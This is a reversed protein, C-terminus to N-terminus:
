LIAELEKESFESMPRPPALKGEVVVTLMESLALLDETDSSLVLVACGAAARQKIFAYIERRTKVDVGRTPECLVLVSAESMVARGFIIKQKNGGSLAGFRYDSDQPEVGYEQVARASADSERKPSLLGLANKWRPLSSITFNERVTFEDFGGQSERHPPVMAANVGDAFVVKGREVKQEGTMIYALDHLGSGLLGGVGIIQGARLDLSVPGFGKSVVNEVRALVEGHVVGQAQAVDLSDPDAANLEHNMLMQTLSTSDLNEASKDVALKGDILIVVRRTVELVESLKHSVMIITAGREASRALAHTVRRADKPPLTSTVEDVFMIRAGRYFARAVALLAKEAPSLSSVLSDVSLDLEVAALAESAAEREAKLNLIPGFLRMPKQALRMNEVVTLDDVLGLDQHIFGVLPHNGLSSVPQGDLLISGSTATYVGDLIKILTSKGAGNPGLLGVFEGPSFRLSVGRLAAYSGFNKQLERIELTPTKLTSADDM